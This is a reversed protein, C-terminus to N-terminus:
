KVVRELCIICDELIRTIQNIYIEKIKNVTKSEDKIKTDNFYYSLSPIIMKTYNILLDILLHHKNEYVLSLIQITRKYFESYTNLKSEKLELINEKLNIEIFNIIKKLENKSEISLVKSSSKNFDSLLNQFDFNIEEFDKIKIDERNIPITGEFYAGHKSLNYINIESDKQLLKKDMDKISNYFFSTTFVKEKFNGKVKILSKKDNFKDRSQEEELNLKSLIGSSSEVAHSDGTIQNLSLDLGIIYIEKANMKLLINLGIEGISFGDFAINNKHFPNYLEYLFLNEKNFKKLLEEHTIVSALIITNKNIELINKMDFQLDCLEKKEDVTLIMDIKIKNIILKKYAAGITVIFFKNQNQNIWEVNDDLSPGAAIFLIPKTEFFTLNNEVKNFLLFKYESKLTNTTRNIYSYLKRNYDYLSEQKSNIGSVIEDIYETINVGTSSLKILYNDFPTHELFNNIKMEEDQTNDMISFIVGEKALITYDTTFLSLRFIELNREFVLYLNADVKQAIKPIHRGSLTGLFIFKKIEKIKKKIKTFNKLIKKYELMDNLSLTIFEDKEEYDFRNNNSKTLEGEFFFYESVNFISMKDDFQIKNILDNNIKKPNKNYLYNNNQIDYIDFDGVEEIFELSYKEKYSNQEIMRSLEDVRHYLTNDYESLFVLNALFTTTLANQLQLQQETM